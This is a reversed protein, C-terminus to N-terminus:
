KKTALSDRIEKLLSLETDEKDEAKNKSIRANLKEVPLVVAFYVAAAILLFNVVATLFVGIKIQGFVLFSDFNPSQVLMSIAPMLVSQVLATVVATFATGMIIGVALDIVNGRLLFNKFGQM